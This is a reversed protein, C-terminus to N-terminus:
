SKSITKLLQESRYFLHEFKEQGPVFDGYWIFEYARTIQKYESAFSKSSLEMEYELNSKFPKWDILNNEDLRKLIRLYVYRFALRYNEKQIAKQQKSELDERQIDEEDSFVKGGGQKKNYNRLSATSSFGTIRLLILIIAAALVLYPLVKTLFYRLQPGIGHDPLISDLWKFFNFGSGSIEEALYGKRDSDNKLEEYKENDFQRSDAKLGVPAFMLLIASIFFCLIINKKYTRVLPM